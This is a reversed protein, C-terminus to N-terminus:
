RSDRKHTCEYYYNFPVPKLASGQHPGIDISFDETDGGSTMVRTKVGAYMDKIAQIYTKSVGRKKLCNWLVERPVRDYAKELDIFVMHLDKKKDRYM